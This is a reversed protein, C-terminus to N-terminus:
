YTFFINVGHLLLLIVACFWPLFYIDLSTVSIPLELFCTVVKNRGFYNQEGM